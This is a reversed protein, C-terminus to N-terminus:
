QVEVYLSPGRNKGKKKIIPYINTLRKVEDFNQHKMKNSIKAM